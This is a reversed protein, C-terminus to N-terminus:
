LVLFLEANFCGRPKSSKKLNKFTKETVSVGEERDQNGLYV